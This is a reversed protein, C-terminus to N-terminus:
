HKTIVDSLLDVTIDKEKYKERKVVKKKGSRFGPIMQRSNLRWNKMYWRFIWKKLIKTLFGYRKSIAITVRSYYKFSILIM